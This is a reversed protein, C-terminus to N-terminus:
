FFTKFDKFGNFNDSVYTIIFGSIVFFLDVGIAGFNKLFYFNAQNSNGNGIFNLSHVYVVLTAAIARLYQISNIKM